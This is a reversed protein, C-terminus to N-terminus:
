FSKRAAVLKTQPRISRDAEVEIDNLISQYIGEWVQIREDNKLYPATHVLSGYLYLDPYQTLAWNTPNGTSIAPLNSYYWMELTAPTASAPPPVMRLTKGMITYYITNQTPTYYPALVPVITTQPSWGQAQITMSQDPTIYILAMQTDQDMLQYMSLFDTPLPAYDNVVSAIARTISGPHKIRAMDRSIRTTAMVTFDPIVSTLDARNLTDSIKACLGQYNATFTPDAYTTV